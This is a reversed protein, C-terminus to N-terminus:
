YTSGAHTKFKQVFEDNSLVVLMQNSGVIKFYRPHEGPTGVGAALINFAPKRRQLKVEDTLEAEKGHPIDVVEYGNDLFFTWYAIVEPNKDQLTQIQAETFKALLRKDYEGQAHAVASVSLLTCLILVKMCTKNQRAFCNM